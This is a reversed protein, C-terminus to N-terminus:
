AADNGQKKDDLPLLVNVLALADDHSTIDKGTAWGWRRTDFPNLIFYEGEQFGIRQLQPVTKGDVDFIVARIPYKRAHEQCAKQIARLIPYTLMEIILSKGSRSAGAIVVHRPWEGWEINRGGFFGAGTIHPKIALDQILHLRKKMRSIQDEWDYISLSPIENNADLNDWEQRLYTMNHSLSNLREVDQDYSKFRRLSAHKLNGSWKNKLLSIEDLIDSIKTEISRISTIDNSISSDHDKLCILNGAIKADVEEAKLLLPSLADIENEIFSKREVAEPFNCRNNCSVIAQFSRSANKIDLNVLSKHELFSNQTEYVGRTLNNIESQSECFKELESQIILYQRIALDELNSILNQIHALKRNLNKKAKDFFFELLFFQYFWDALPPAIVFMSTFIGAVILLSGMVTVGTM